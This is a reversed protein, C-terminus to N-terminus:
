AAAPQGQGSHHPARPRERGPPSQQGGHAASRKCSAAPGRAPRPRATPNQLAPPLNAQLEEPTMEMTAQKAAEELAAELGPYVGDEVLQNQVAVALADDPIAGMNAYIQSTEARLKDRDATEKPTM